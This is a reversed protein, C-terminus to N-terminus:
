EDNVKKNHKLIENVLEETIEDVFLFKNAALYTQRRDDEIALDFFDVEGLEAEGKSFKMMANTNELDNDKIAGIAFSYMNSWVVCTHGQAQFGKFLKLVLDKKPGEITGKVDFAIKM